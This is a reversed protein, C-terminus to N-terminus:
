GCERERNGHGGGGRASSAANVADSWFAPGRASESVGARSIGDAPDYSHVRVNMGCYAAVAAEFTPHLPQNEQADNM